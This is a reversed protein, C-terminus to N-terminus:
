PQPGWTAVVHRTLAEIQTLWRKGKAWEAHSRWGCECVAARQGARGAPTFNLFGHASM